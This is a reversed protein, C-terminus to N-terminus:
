DGCMSKLSQSIGTAVDGWRLPRDTLLVPVSYNIDKHYLISSIAINPNVNPYKHCYHQIVKDLSMEKLLYYIDIFDKVRQGSNIIANIEMAAIDENSMIRIGEITEIPKVSLFKHSIFDFDV